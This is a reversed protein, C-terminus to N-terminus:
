TAEALLDKFDSKDKEAEINKEMEKRVKASGGAGSIVGQWGFGVTFVSHLNSVAIGGTTTQTIGAVIGGSILFLLMMLRFPANEIRLVSLTRDTMLLIFLYVFSGAIGVIFSILFTQIPDTITPITAGQTMKNANQTAVPQKCGLISTFILLLTLSVLVKKM